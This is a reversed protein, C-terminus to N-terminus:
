DPGPPPIVIDEYGPPPPVIVDEYGPLLLIVIDEYSPPPPIIVDKYSPPLPVIVDEDHDPASAAGNAEPALEPVPDSEPKPVLEPLPEPIPEPISQPVPQPVPEPAIAEEVPVANTETLLEPAIAEAAAAANAESMTAGEWLIEHPDEKELKGTEYLFWLMVHFMHFSQLCPHEVRVLYDAWQCAQGMLWSIM